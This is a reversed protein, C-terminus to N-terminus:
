GGGSIQGYIPHRFMVISNIGDLHEKVPDRVAYDKPLFQTDRSLWPDYLNEINWFEMSEYVPVTM